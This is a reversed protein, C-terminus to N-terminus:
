SATSIGLCIMGEKCNIHQVTQHELPLRDLTADVTLETQLAFSKHHLGQKTSIPRTRSTSYSSTKKTKCNTQDDESRRSRATWVKRNQDCAHHIYALRVQARSPQTVAFAHMITLAQLHASLSKYLETMCALLMGLPEDILCTGKGMSMTCM